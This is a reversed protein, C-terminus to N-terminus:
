NYFIGYTLLENVQTETIEHSKPFNVYDAIFPLWRDPNHLEYYISTPKFNRM